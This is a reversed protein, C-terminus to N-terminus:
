DSRRKSKNYVGISEAYEINHLYINRSYILSVFLYWFVLLYHWKGIFINIVPAFVGSFVSGILVYIYLREQRKLKYLYSLFKFDIFLVIFFYAALILVYVPEANHKQSYLSGFYPCYLLAAIGRSFQDQGTYLSM